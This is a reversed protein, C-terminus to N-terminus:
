CVQYHVFSINTFHLAQTIHERVTLYKVSGVWVTVSRPPTVEICQHLPKYPTVTSDM